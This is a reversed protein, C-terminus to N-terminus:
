LILITVSLSHFEIKDADNEGHQLSNTRLNPRDKGHDKPHGILENWKVKKVILIICCGLILTVSRMMLIGQYRAHVGWVGNPLVEPKGNKQREKERGCAM